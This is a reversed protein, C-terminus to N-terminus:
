KKMLISNLPQRYNYVTRGGLVDNKDFYKKPRREKGTVNGKAIYEKDEKTDISDWSEMFILSYSLIKNDEYYLGPGFSINSVENIYSAIIHSHSSGLISKFVGDREMVPLAKFLTLSGKTIYRENTNKNFIVRASSDVYDKEDIDFAVRNEDAIDDNFFIFFYDKAEEITDWREIDVNLNLVSYGKDLILSLVEPHLIEREVRVFGADRTYSSAIKKNTRGIIKEVMIYHAKDEPSEFKTVPDRRIFLENAISGREM